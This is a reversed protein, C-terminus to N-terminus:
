KADYWTKGVGVEAILPVACSYANEMEEKLLRGVAEAETEPAEVILEDHVQLILRAGFGERRLRAATNVMALKIVDAATGQVPMNMAVREEFNRMVANTGNIGELRRRRGLATRAYGTEKASAVSADLWERVKPYTRFYNEIYNKADYVSIKLDKSLTFAGMGYVIGFNIAKARGRIEPTVTDAPTGFVRAATERHFDNGSLFAAIMNEDGSLAALLRLEIQSYDADVLACGEAARFFRRMNSGLETRVPINQLNPERSSIRGTRTETQLFTTHVRGDEGAAESLGNVYTSVLKTLTRYELVLDVIESEGRLKGLTEADTSWGTKTKKGGRLGLRNFLVDGLQKPSNLNFECGALRYIETQIAEARASLETGFANLGDTDVTFGAREMDTLVRALPLEMDRLLATMGDAELAAAVADCVAPLLSAASAADEGAPRPISLLRALAFVSYDSRDPRLLYGGIAACFAAKPMPLSLEACRRCLKKYDNVRLRGAYASLAKAAGDLDRCILPAEACLAGEGAAFDLYVDASELKGLASAFAAADAESAEPVPAAPAAEAPAANRLGLKEIFKELEYKKFAAALAAPDYPKILYADPDTEVPAELCITGLERSLFAVERDRELKERLAGKQEDINAYVGELDSYRRILECATKEGVGKVGPINDSSDGMLGKVDRLQKPEVGYLENIKAPDCRMTEGGAVKAGALLVTVRGSVLQFADRDGTAIFVEGGLKESLTGIIDDAEYGPVERRPVGYADLLEKLVPFQALLEDPTPHRGAKYEAYMKHRFTPQKLDFAVCARDPAVDALLRFLINMFGFVGNTPVGDKTSLPRVGYFARNLLSNGDILLTKM